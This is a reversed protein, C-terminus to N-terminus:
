VDISPFPPALAEPLPTERGRAPQDRRSVDGHLEAVGADGGVILVSSELGVGELACTTFADKALLGGAGFGVAGLEGTEELRQALAVHEDHPDSDCRM